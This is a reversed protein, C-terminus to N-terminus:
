PLIRCRDTVVRTGLCCIHGAAEMAMVLWISLYINIDAEHVLQHLSFKSFLVERRNEIHTNQHLTNIFSKFNNFIWCGQKSFSPDAINDAEEEEQKEHPSLFLSYIYTYLVLIQRKKPFSASLFVCSSPPHNWNWSM